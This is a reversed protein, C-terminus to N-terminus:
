MMQELRRIREEVPPHTSWWSAWSRARKKTPDSIYLAACARSAAQVPEPAAAIKRLASALAGPNRCLEAGSADALYERNRSIALQLFVAILPSLLLFVLAVLYVIAQGQSERNSRRRRSGGGHWLLRMGLDSLIGVVAVLAVATTALRVDYNQIHAVEHALVGEIEHRNLRDLLGTTVAVAANQPSMGAAFANPSPDDIIYVKPMPVRAAISLAEVTNWLFPNEDESKIERARNMAMVVQTGARTMVLVYAVGIVSAIVIGTVPDEATVVGFAAGVAAFFLLFLGVLLVTKRKNSEIQAHLM